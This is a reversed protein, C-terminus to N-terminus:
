KKTSSSSGSTSLAGSTGLLRRLEAATSALAENGAYGAAAELILVDLEDRPALHYPRRSQGTTSSKFPEATATSSAENVDNNSSSSPASVDIHIHVDVYSWLVKGFAVGTAGNGPAWEFPDLATSTLVIKRGANASQLLAILAGVSGRHGDASLTTDIDDVLLVTTTGRRSVFRDLSTSSSSPATSSTMSAHLDWSHVVIDPHDRLRLCATTKGCRPPGTVLLVKPSIVSTTKTPESSDRICQILLNSAVDSNDAVLIQM